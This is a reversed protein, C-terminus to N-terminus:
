TVNQYRLLNFLPLRLYSNGFFFVLTLFLFGDHECRIKITTHSSQNFPFMPPKKSAGSIIRIGTFVELYLANKAM